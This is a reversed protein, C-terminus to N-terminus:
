DEGKFLVRVIQTMIVLGVTISASYAYDHPFRSAQITPYTLLPIQAITLTAFATILILTLTREEKNDKLIVNTDPIM